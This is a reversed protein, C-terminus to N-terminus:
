QDDPQIIAKAPVYLGIEHRFYVWLVESVGMHVEGGKADRTVIWLEQLERLLFDALGAGQELYQDDENGILACIDSMAKTIDDEFRAKADDEYYRLLQACNRNESHFYMLRLIHTLAMVAVLRIGFSAQKGTAADRIMIVRPRVKGLYIQQGDKPSIHQDPSLEHRLLADIFTVHQHMPAHSLKKATVEMQERKKVVDDTCRKAWATAHRLKAEVDGTPLGQSRRLEVEKQANEQAEFAAAETKSLTELRRLDYKSKAEIRKDNSRKMDDDKARRAEAEKVAPRARLDKLLDEDTLSHM